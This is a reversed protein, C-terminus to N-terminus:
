EARHASTLGIACVTDGDLEFYLSAPITLSDQAALAYTMTSGAQTYETGYAAEVDKRSAGIGVGQATQVDATCYLELLRDADGDPYAYTKDMGTYVCSVAESYTYDTGFADLLASVSTDPRVATGGVTLTLDVESITKKGCSGLLACLLLATLLLCITKKM